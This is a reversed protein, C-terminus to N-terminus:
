GNQQGGKGKKKRTKLEAILANFEDAKLAWYDAPSMHLEACVYAM